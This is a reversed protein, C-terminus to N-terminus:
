VLHNLDLNCIPCTSYRAFWHFICKKHFYHSCPLLIIKEGSYLWSKCQGCEEKYDDIKIKKEILKNKEKIKKRKKNNDDALMLLSSYGYDLPINPNIKKFKRNIHVNDHPIIYYIQEKDSDDDEGNDIYKDNNMDSIDLYFAENLSIDLKGFYSKKDEKNKEEEKDKKDEKEKKEENKIDLKGNKICENGSNLRKPKTSHLRINNSKIISQYNSFDYNLNNSKINRIQNYKSPNIYKQFENENSKINFHNKLIRGSNNVISKNKNHSLPSHITYKNNNFNIIQSNIANLLNQKKNHNEINYNKNRKEM